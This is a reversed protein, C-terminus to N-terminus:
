LLLIKRFIYAIKYKLSIPSHLFGNPNLNLMKQIVMKQKDDKYHYKKMQWLLIMNFCMAGVQIDEKIDRSSQDLMQQYAINASLKNPNFGERFMTSNENVRYFYLPTNISAIKDSNKLCEFNFLTDECVKISTDFHIQYKNLFAVRFMRNWVFAAINKQPVCLERIMEKKTLIQSTVATNDFCGGSIYQCVAVDCELVELANHLMEIYLTSVYDDSDVFCVYKGHIISLGTNRADAIGGNEKHLTVIRSDKKAWEECKKSSSDTSGDDVLIIEINQYTQNILSKVCIDLYKESQYVPVVISVKDDM